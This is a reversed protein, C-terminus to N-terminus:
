IMGFGETGENISLRLAREFQEYSDYDPLCLQNFCTHATPLSGFTPAASLHFRPNLEAFGGPPLQSCGTTFQLLRAMEEETFNSVATWFWDLVKRFEFSFGSVTHNAKFDAISFQGTGCMLLELENEDFICLLNEPILENLGKLFYEVEERVSTALRYQALADLYMLKNQNTVRIKSGGPILETTKLLQGSSTYEEESFYLEMDDVDNELIYKIKTVYLDPDDQEFYKYHVRLGILQALFSRSFRARVLQRYGSGLSSEYLCKSVIRGAYEYHKLKLHAPRRPNPHVLGQKDNKFRHFLQNEPDFLASCLIEFWERRLGGWDLGQEGIFTIEFSKCWDSTSFNKTAKMSSDLIKDRSVKLQLKDHYHKQHLKRVEYHFFELKDKFTESGGINKLLFQTFTAAIVDREECVMEVQPQCGDDVVLVPEGEHNNSGKFQFKTSPCLRFTILRKPIIRLVYEKITLQKPSIYVFVKKPKSLKECNMAILKAEYWINHSKKAVNKRVLAADSKSLVIVHFDGNSLSTGRYSVNVQYCGVKDLTLVLAIRSNEPHSEWHYCSTVPRNSSVEIIDVSYEDSPDTTTDVLCANNYKDRPELFLHHPEDQTCVVTCSHHIFGTKQPDPRGPLFNKVFPSGRVHVMGILVSVHCLGARRVTFQVRAQNALNPDTGGLEVSCAVKHAGNGAVIEVLLPDEDCIPYSRGNRQFFKIFFTLTNGVVQPEKWDFEVKCNAPSLYKGTLYSLFGLKAAAAASQDCLLGAPALMLSVVGVLVSAVLSVGLVAGFAWTKQQQEFLIREWILDTVAGLEVPSSPLQKVAHVVESSWGHKKGKADSLVQQALQELSEIASPIYSTKGYGLNPWGFFFSPSEASRQGGTADEADRDDCVGGEPDVVGPRASATRDGADSAAASGASDGRRRAAVSLPLRHDRLWRELVLRSRLRRAPPRLAEYLEGVGNSSPPLPASPSSVGPSSSLPPLPSLLLDCCSALSDCGRDYMFQKHEGFGVNHLWRFVEEQDQQKIFEDSQRIALFTLVFTALACLVASPLRAALWISPHSMFTVTIGNGRSSGSQADM